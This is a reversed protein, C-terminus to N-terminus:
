EQKGTDVLSGAGTQAFMGRCIDVASRYTPKFVNKIYLLHKLIAVLVGSLTLSRSVEPAQPFILQRSFMKLMDARRSRGEWTTFQIM